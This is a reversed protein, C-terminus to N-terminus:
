LSVREGQLLNMGDVNEANYNIRLNKCFSNDGLWGALQSPKSLNDLLVQVHSGDGATM